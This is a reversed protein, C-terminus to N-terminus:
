ESVILKQFRESPFFGELREEVVADTVKDLFLLELIQFDLELLPELSLKQGFNDSAHVTQNLGLFLRTVDALACQSQHLLDLGATEVPEHKNIAQRLILEILMDLIDLPDNGFGTLHRRLHYVEQPDFHDRHAFNVKFGFELGKQDLDENKDGLDGTIMGLEVM